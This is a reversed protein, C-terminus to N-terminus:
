RSTSSAALATVEEAPIHATETGLELIRGIVYEGYQHPDFDDVRVDWFFARLENPIM